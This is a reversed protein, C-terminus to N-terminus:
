ATCRLADVVDLVDIADIPGIGLLGTAADAPPAAVLLVAGALATAVAALTVARLAGLPPPSPLARSLAIPLDDHSM